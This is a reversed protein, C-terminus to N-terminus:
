RPIPGSFVDETHIKYKPRPYLAMCARWTWFTPPRTIVLAVTKGPGVRRFDMRVDYFQYEPTSWHGWRRFSEYHFPQGAIEAVDPRYALYYIPRGLRNTLLFLYNRQGDAAPTVRFLHLTAAHSGHAAGISPQLSCIFLLVSILTTKV